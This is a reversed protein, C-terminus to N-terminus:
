LLAMKSVGALHMLASPLATNNETGELEVPEDEDNGGGDKRNRRGGRPRRRQGKGGADAMIIVTALAGLARNLTRADAEDLCTSDGRMRASKRSVAVVEAALGKSARRRWDRRRGCVGM